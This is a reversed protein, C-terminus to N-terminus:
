LDNLGIEKTTLTVKYGLQELQCVSQKIVKIVQKKKRTSHKQKIAKKLGLKRCFEVPSIKNLQEM